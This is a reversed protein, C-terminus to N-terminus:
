AVHGPPAPSCLPRARLPHRRWGLWWAAVAVAGVIPGAAAAGAALAVGATGLAGAAGVLRPRALRVGVVTLAAALLLHVRVPTQFGPVAGGEYWSYMPLAQFCLRSSAWEEGGWDVGCNWPNHLNLVPWLTDARWPLGLCLVAALAALRWWRSARAPDAPRGPGAPGAPAGAVRHVAATM